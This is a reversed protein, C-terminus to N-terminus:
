IVALMIYVIHVCHYTFLLGLIAIYVETDATTNDDTNFEEVTSTEVDKDNDDLNSM